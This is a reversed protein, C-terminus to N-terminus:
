RVVQPIGDPTWKISFASLGAAKCATRIASAIRAKDNAYTSATPDQKLSRLVLAQGNPLTRLRQVLSDNLNPKRGRKVFSVSSADIIEFDDNSDNPNQSKSSL